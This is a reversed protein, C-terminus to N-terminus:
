SEVKRRVRGNMIFHDQEFRAVDDSMVKWELHNDAYRRISRIGAVDFMSPEPQRGLDDFRAWGAETQGRPGAGSM